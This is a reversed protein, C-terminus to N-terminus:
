ASWTRGDFVRGYLNFDGSEMKKQASYVCWIRGRSDEALAVRFHDGPATLPQPTSWSFGDRSRSLMIQDGGEISPGKRSVTKYAVWAIWYDGGRSKLLAPDDDEFEASTATRPIPVREVSVDGDLEPIYYIAGYPVQEPKF